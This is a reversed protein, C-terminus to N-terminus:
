LVYSHDNHSFEEPMVPIFQYIGYLLDKTYKVSFLVGVSSHPLMVARMIVLM